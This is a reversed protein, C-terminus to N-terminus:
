AAREVLERVTALLEDHDVPKTLAKLAGLNEAVELYGEPALRGGGSIAIIKVDPSEARLRQITEFGELGPMIIDTIILDFPNERFLQIAEFGDAAEVIEYGERELTLRLMSRVQNDDDVVLIRATM